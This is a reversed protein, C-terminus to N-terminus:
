PEEGARVFRELWFCAVAYLFLPVAVLILAAIQQEETAGIAWVWISTASGGVCAAVVFLWKLWWLLNLLM